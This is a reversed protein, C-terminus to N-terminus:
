SSRRSRILVSLTNSILNRRRPKVPVTNPDFRASELADCTALGGGAFAAVAPRAWGRLTAVLPYADRLLERAWAVQLCVVRRLAEPAPRTALMDVRCGAAALDRAPLYVRGRDCDEAVDQCHEVIQLASCVSNSWAVNRANWQGFVHLVLEGIPAASLACYELLEKRTAIRELKQDFRNAEILRSFPSCPIDHRRITSRLTRLLPHAPSGVYVQDLDDELVDLLALRDGRADDGIQDVLRAFGYIALLDEKIERPLFWAAVPFNERGSFAMIASADLGKSSTIGSADSEAAINPHVAESSL